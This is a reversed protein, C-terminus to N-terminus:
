AASPLLPDWYTISFQMRLQAGANPCRLSHAERKEPNTQFGVPRQSQNQVYVSVAIYPIHPVNPVLRM